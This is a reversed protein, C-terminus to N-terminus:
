GEGQTDHGMTIRRRKRVVLRPVAPTPIQVNLGKMGKRRRYVRINERYTYSCTM